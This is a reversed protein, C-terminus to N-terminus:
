EVEFTEMEIIEFKGDNSHEKAKEHDTFAPILYEGDPLETEIGDVSISHSMKLVVYLKM